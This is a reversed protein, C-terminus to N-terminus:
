TYLSEQAAWILDMKPKYNDVDYMLDVDVRSVGETVIQLDVHTLNYRQQYATMTGFNGDRVLRGALIAFNMAGLMDQGDPSGTRLLYTLSQLFVEEGTLKRMLHAAVLGSGSLGKELGIIQENDPLLYPLYESVKDQVISSGDTITVVAYNGPTMRKDNLTLFALKEPDYPVEPIVARDVHALFSIMLSSLGSGVGFTEVVIVQERSGALARLENIFAVGRALGTSFGITYDTGKINNHITKPIAVIPLGQRSLDAACMLMDDDGLVVMAHFDLRQFVDVIHDNLDQIEEQGKQLFPPIQSRPVERLSIRSSHLYSGHMRDIPRVMAKTLDTFNDAYTTPDHPNYNILGNWGKRVGIPDFGEDILNYVLGKLCNNLGPVDGGGVLVAVRKSM